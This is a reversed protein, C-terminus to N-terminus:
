AKEIVRRGIGTIRALQRISIDKEKLNRVIEDRVKKDMQQIKQPNDSKILEKILRKAEEDTVRKREKIENDLCKDKNEEEMYKKFTKIAKNRDSNLINLVYEVETLIDRQSIYEGYSSWKYNELKKVMGAKIPNQHIYRLAALFYKDDEVKESKYRDQFLPGYREYKMNYWYVYSAGIRKMIQSITEAGEKLLLHIHNSMLCYGYIQYGCIDKYKKLTEIFKLNDEEDNFIDQRNIGRLMIHYIGSSSKERAQRPM